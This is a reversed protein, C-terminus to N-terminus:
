KMQVCKEGVPIDMVELHPGLKIGLPMGPGLMKGPVASHVMFAGKLDILQCTLFQFEGRNGPMQARVSNLGEM